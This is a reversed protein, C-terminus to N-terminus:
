DDFAEVDELRCVYLAGSRDRCEAQHVREGNVLRLAYGVFRMKAPEDWGKHSVLVRKGLCGVIDSREM